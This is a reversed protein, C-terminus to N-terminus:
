LDISIDGLLRNFQDQERELAKRRLEEKYEAEAKGDDPFKLPITAGVRFFANARLAQQNAELLQHPERLGSVIFGLERQIERIRQEFEEATGPARLVGRRSFGMPLFQSEMLEPMWSFVVQTFDAAENMEVHQRDIVLRREPGFVRGVGRRATELFPMTYDRLYDGALQPNRIAGTAYLRLVADTQTVVRQPVRAFDEYGPIPQFREPM